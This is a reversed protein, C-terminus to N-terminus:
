EVARPPAPLRKLQPTLEKPLPRGTTQESNALASTKAGPTALGRSRATDPGAPIYGFTANTYSENLLITSQDRTLIWIAMSGDTNKWIVAEDGAANLSTSVPLWGLFPGYTYASVYNLNPDLLWLALGGTTSRWMVRTYNDDGVALAVPIWGEYPGDTAASVFNLNGDLKWVAISSDAGQWLVRTYGDTGIGSTQGSMTAPSLVAWVTALCLMLVLNTSCAVFKRKMVDGKFGRKKRPPKVQEILM